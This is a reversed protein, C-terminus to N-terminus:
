SQTSVVRKLWGAIALCSQHERQLQCVLKIRSPTSVYRGFTASVKRQCPGRGCASIRRMVLVFVIEVPIAALRVAMRMPMRDQGVFMWMKRVDMMAM